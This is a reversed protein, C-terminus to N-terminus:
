AARLHEAKRGPDLRVTAVPTWTRTSGSWWETDEHRAAAHIQQRREERRDCVIVRAMVSRLLDHLWQAQTGDQLAPHMTGWVGRLLALM